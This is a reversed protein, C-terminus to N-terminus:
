AQPPGLGLSTETTDLGLTAHEGRGETPQASEADRGRGLAHGQSTLSPGATSSTGKPANSSKPPCSILSPLQLRWADTEQRSQGHSLGRLTAGALQALRSNTFAAPGRDARALHWYIDPPKVSTANHTGETQTWLYVGM